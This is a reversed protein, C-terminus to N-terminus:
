VATRGSCEFVNLLKRELMLRICDGNVVAQRFQVTQGELRIFVSGGIEACVNLIICDVSFFAFGGANVDINQHFCIIRFFSFFCEGLTVLIGVFGRGVAILDRIVDLFLFVFLLPVGIDANVTFLVAFAIDISLYVENGILVFHVLILELCVHHCHNVGHFEGNLVFVGEDFIVAAESEIRM